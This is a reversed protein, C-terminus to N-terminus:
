EVTSVQFASSLRCMVDSIPPRAQPEFTWCEDLVSWIEDTVNRGYDLRRPRFKPLDERRLFPRDPRRKPAESTLIELVLLAFSYMDSSKTTSRCLDQETPVDSDYVIFLEPAMYPVTGVSATTFGRINIIKSIGFDCILPTWQEDVLVNQVKLDGHVIDRAHLYELGLAVGLIINPRNAEPHNRLFSGVHGLQYFPSILVPGPAIDNSIGFFPVLNKHKLRGWVEAERKLRRLAANSQMDHDYQIMKIAVRTSRGNRWTLHGRYINSNAGRAFPYQDDQVIRGRLDQEPVQLFSPNGLFDQGENDQDDVHPSEPGGPLNLTKDNSPITELRGEKAERPRRKKWYNVHVIIHHMLILIVAGGIWYLPPTGTTRPMRCGKSSNSVLAALAAVLAIVLITNKRATCMLQPGNQSDSVLASHPPSSAGSCAAPTPSQVYDQM